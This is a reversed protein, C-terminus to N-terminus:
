AANQTCRQWALENYGLSIQEQMRFAPDICKEVKRSRQSPLSPCGGRKCEACSSRNLAQWPPAREESTGKLARCFSICALLESTPHVECEGLRSNPDTQWEASTGALLGPVLEIVSQQNAPSCARPFCFSDRKDKFCSPPYFPPTDEFQVLGTAAAPQLLFKLCCVNDFPILQNSSWFVSLALM